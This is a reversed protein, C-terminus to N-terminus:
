WSLRTGQTLGMTKARGGAVELVYQSPYKVRRSRLSLPVANEEVGVIMRHEDIFVMDLPILTNKMWFSQVKPSDFLFLMGDVNGFSERCMMGLQRKKHTDAIEVRLERGHGFTLTKKELGRQPLHSHSECESNKKLSSTKPALAPSLARQKQAESTNQTAHQPPTREDNAIQPSCSLVCLIPASILFRERIFCPM